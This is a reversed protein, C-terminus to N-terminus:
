IYYISVVKVASPFKSKPSLSDWSHCYITLLSTSPFKADDIVSYVTLNKAEIAMSIMNPAFFKKAYYHLMKWSGDYDIIFPRYSQICPLSRPCDLMTSDVWQSIVLQTGALHWQAALLTRGDHARRQWVPQESQPSLVWLGNSHVHSSQGPLTTFIWWQLVPITLVHLYESVQTLYIYYTFNLAVDSTSNPQNFYYQIQSNM